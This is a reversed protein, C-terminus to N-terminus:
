SRGESVKKLLEDIIELAEKQRKISLDMGAVQDKRPLDASRAARNLYETSRDMLEAAHKLETASDQVLLALAALLM